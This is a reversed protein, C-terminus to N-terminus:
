AILVLKSLVTTQKPKKPPPVKMCLSVKCKTDTFTAAGMVYKVCIEFALIIGEVGRDLSVNKQVQM